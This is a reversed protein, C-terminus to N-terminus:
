AEECIIEAGSSCGLEDSADECDSEGDCKASVPIKEGSKCSFVPCGLEDSSDSCDEFGDCKEQQPIKEGSKCSFVPCGLEDAGNDCDDFGDCKEDAFYVGEDGCEIERANEGCSAVCDDVPSANGGCFSDELQECTARKFCGFACTAEADGAANGCETAGASLLGCSRLKQAASECASDSKCSSTLIAATLALYILKM